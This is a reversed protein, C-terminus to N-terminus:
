GEDCAKEIAGGVGACEFREVTEQGNSGQEFGTGGTPFDLHLENLKQIEVKHGFSRKRAISVTGVVVGRARGLSHLSAWALPQAPVNM